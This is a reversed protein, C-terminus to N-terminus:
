ILERNQCFIWIAHDHFVLLFFCDSKGRDLKPTVIRNEGQLNNYENLSLFYKCFIM